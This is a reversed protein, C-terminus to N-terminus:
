GMRRKREAIMADAHGYCDQAIEAISCDSAGPHAFLGALAQGAFWDRLSMGRNEAEVLMGNPDAPLPVVLWRVISNNVCILPM